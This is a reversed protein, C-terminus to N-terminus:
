RASRCYVFLVAVCALGFAIRSASASSSSAGESLVERRRSPPNRVIATVDFAGIGQHLVWRPNLQEFCPLLTPFRSDPLAVGLCGAAHAGQIQVFM